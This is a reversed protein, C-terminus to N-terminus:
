RACFFSPLRSPAIGNLQFMAVIVSSVEIFCDIQDSGGTSTCPGTDIPRHRILTLANDLIDERHLATQSWVSITLRPEHGVCSDDPSEM